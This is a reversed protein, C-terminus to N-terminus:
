GRFCFVYQADSALFGCQDLLNALLKKYRKITRNANKQVVHTHYSQGIIGNKVIPQLMDVDMPVKDLVEDLQLCNAGRMDRANLITRVEECFCKIVEFM